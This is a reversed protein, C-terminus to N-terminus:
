GYVEASKFDGVFAFYNAVSGNFVEDDRLVFITRANFKDAWGLLGLSLCWNAITLHHICSDRSQKMTRRWCDFARPFDTDAAYCHGLQAYSSLNIGDPPNDYGEPFLSDLMAAKVTRSVVSEFGGRWNIRNFYFHSAEGYKRLGVLANFLEMDPKVQEISSYP